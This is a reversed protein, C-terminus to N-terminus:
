RGAPACLVAREPLHRRSPRSAESVGLPGTESRKGASANSVSDGFSYGSTQFAPSRLLAAGTRKYQANQKWLRSRLGRVGRNTGASILTHM